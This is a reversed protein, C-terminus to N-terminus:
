GAAADTIAAVIRAMTGTLMDGHTDGNGCGTGGPVESAPEAPTIWVPPQRAIGTFNWSMPGACLGDGDRTKSIVDAPTPFHDAGNFDAVDAPPRWRSLIGGYLTVVVLDLSPVVM